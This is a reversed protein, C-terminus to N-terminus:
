AISKLNSLFRDNTQADVYVKYNRLNESCFEKLLFEISLVRGFVEMSLEKILGTLDGDYSEVDDLSLGMKLLCSVEITLEKFRSYIEFFPVDMQLCLPIFYLHNKDVDNPNIESIDYGNNLIEELLIQSHRDSYKFYSSMDKDYIESLATLRGIVFSEENPNLFPRFDFGADLLEKCCLWGFRNSGKFKFKIFESLDTCGNEMLWNLCELQSRNEIPYDELLIEYEYDWRELFQNTFSKIFSNLKIEISDKNYVKKGSLLCLEVLCPGGYVDKKEINSNKKCEEFLYNVVKIPSKFDQPKNLYVDFLNKISILKLSNYDLTGAKYEKILTRSIFDSYNEFLYQIFEFYSLHINISKTPKFYFDNGLELISPSVENDNIGTFILESTEENIKDKTYKTLFNFFM